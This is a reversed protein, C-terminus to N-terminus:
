FWTLLCEFMVCVEVYSSASKLIKGDSIGAAVVRLDLLPLLVLLFLLLCVLFQYRYLLPALPFWVEPPVEVLSFYVDILYLLAPRASKTLFITM